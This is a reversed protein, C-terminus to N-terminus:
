EFYWCWVRVEIAFKSAAYPGVFNAAVKGAVSSMFVIRGKGARIHPMFAQVVRVQGVVNVDLQRQFLSIDVFELPYPGINCGAINLLGSIGGVEEQVQAAAAQITEPKTVDIVVPIINEPHKTSNKLNQIREDKLSRFGAYIKHGMDAHYVAAAFGIGSSAGTIVIPGNATICPYKKTVSFKSKVFQFLAYIVIGNLALISLVTTLACDM